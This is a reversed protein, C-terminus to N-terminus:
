RGYNVYVTELQEREWLILWLAQSDKREQRSREKDMARELYRSRLFWYERSNYPVNEAQFKDDQLLMNKDLRNM